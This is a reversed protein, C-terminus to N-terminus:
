EYERSGGLIREAAFLIDAVRAGDTAARRLAKTGKVKPREALAMSRSTGIARLEHM